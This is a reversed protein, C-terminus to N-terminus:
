ARARIFTLLRRRGTIVPILLAVGAFGILSEPVVTSPPSVQTDAVGAVGDYTMSPRGGTAHTLTVALCLSGGPPIVLPLQSASTSVTFPSTTSAGNNGFTTTWTSGVNPIIALFGACSGAAVVGVSVEVTDRTLGSGGTWYMTFSWVGASVTQAPLNTFGWVSTSGDSTVSCPTALVGVTQDMTSPTCGPSVGTGHLYLPNGASEVIPVTSSGWLLAAIALVFAGVVVWGIRRGAHSLRAPVARIPATPGGASIPGGGARRGEGVAARHGLLWRRLMHLRRLHHVEDTIRGTKPTRFWPGEDQSLLGKLAAWGQFPVLAFSLVVAGLVGQLDRPPAEELILGGLNMLPLAMVNSFLLAWGLTATWGPVHTHFFVESLLWALTGVV